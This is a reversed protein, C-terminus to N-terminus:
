DNLGKANCIETNVGCMWDTHAAENSGKKMKFAKKIAM